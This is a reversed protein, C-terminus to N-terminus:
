SFMNISTKETIELGDSVKDFLGFEVMQNPTYTVVSKFFLEDPDNNKIKKKLLDIIEQRSKRIHSLHDILESETLTNNTKVYISEVRVKSDRSIYSKTSAASLLVGFLGVEGFCRTTINLKAVDEFMHVIDMAPQYDDTPTKISIYVPTSLDIGTFCNRFSMSEPVDHIEISLRSEERRFSVPPNKADISM